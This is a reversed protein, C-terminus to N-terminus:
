TTECSFVLLLDRALASLYIWPAGCSSGDDRAGSSSGRAAHMPSSPAHGRLSEAGMESEPTQKRSQSSYPGSSSVSHCHRWSSSSIWSILELHFSKRGRRRLGASPCGLGRPCKSANSWSRRWLHDLLREGLQQHKPRAQQALYARVEQRIRFNSHVSSQMM